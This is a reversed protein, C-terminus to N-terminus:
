KTIEEERIISVIKDFGSRLLITKIDSHIIEAITNDAGHM